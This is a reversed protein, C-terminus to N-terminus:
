ALDVVGAVRDECAFALQLGDGSWALATVPTDLDSSHALVEAGDDLRVLVPDTSRLRRNRSVRRGRDLEDFAGAYRLRVDAHAQQRRDALWAADAGAHHHRCFPWGPERHRRSAFGEM